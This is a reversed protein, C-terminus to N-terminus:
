PIYLKIITYVIIDLETRLNGFKDVKDLMTLIERATNEIGDKHHPYDNCFAM